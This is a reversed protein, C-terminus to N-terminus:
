ELLEQLKDYSFDEIKIGSISGRVRNATFFYQKYIGKNRYM